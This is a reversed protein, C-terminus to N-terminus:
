RMNYLSKSELVVDKYALWTSTFPEREIGENTELRAGTVLTPASPWFRLDGLGATLLQQENALLSFSANDFNGIYKYTSSTTGTFVLYVDQIGTVTKELEGTMTTYTGWGNGTPPVAVTGVLRGDVGGLRVEIASDLACNGSNSTYEVALQDVGDSGFDINEYALWAGNYTNAVQKGSKGSETKLPANNAPNVETAWDDFSELELNDYDNRLAQHELTFRDFNGIYRLASTTSAHMILYVTHNGTVTRTLNAELTEYTGWSSGTNKLSVAGIVEGDLRDLRMELEIDDPAKQSPADYEVKIHNKGQKGFDVSEYALWAGDFTNAVVTGGNNDETKLPGNNYENVDSTWESYNEFEVVLPGNGTDPESPEDVKKSFSARDFNGIYKYTADTTGTLVLYVDQIGTISEDFAATATSYTGWGSGTPPVAVTGILTGDIAGLRVEIAADQASNGSNSAYEIALQNVGDTGFDINEYALWAGNFTNAVQEGSKGAETKMPSNNAPNVETSWDDFSELELSTFDTRVEEYDFTFQDFNGIYPFDSTTNGKMVIYLDQTGTVTTTLDAEMTTYSGWGSGTHELPVTGVLQGDVGGLRFELASGEPARSSPADYEVTVKNKGETGFDVGNYALWAGDFTNAVVVGGNNAETKLPGNNFTNVDSSWESRSEFELTLGDTVPKDPQEGEGPEESDDEEPIPLPDLEEEDEGDDEGEDPQDPDTGPVPVPTPLPVVPEALWLSDYVNGNYNDVVYVNVQYDKSTTNFMQSLEFDGNKVPVGNSMWAQGEGNMLQFVVVADESYDGTLTGTVDVQLNGTRKVEVDLEYVDWQDNETYAANSILAKGFSQDKSEDAEVRVQVQGAEYAVPGVTQPNKTVNNWTAGGDTSFEYDTAQDFGPVFTWGFSNDEDDVVPATPADPTTMNKLAELNFEFAIDSSTANTQHVEATIVNEGDVLYAPDIIYGNPNREDNVTGNALTDYKIEGDPMNTRIIEHGNLYVVAGDDRILTADLGVISDADEVEFSKRFYTTIYKNGSDPGYSVETNVNGNRDYGLMAKGSAWTSDDFDVSTWGNGAFQGKDYYKWESETEILDKRVLLNNVEKTYDTTPPASSDAAGWKFNPEAGMEFELTGGAMIEEYGIWAQDFNEGNLQGSQIFRNDSSVNNAKITFSKGNDLNLTMEDFIPSGILYYPDGPNGPFLGMASYIFWSAMAGADDDMSQLYGEPDARYVRSEMPYAYLGHNHYKQTVVETTYERAYYQTLYPMGLYNFLYPVHLDPENVAMYEDIEFFYQLDIAMERESGILDALGEVDHPVFWRYTWLNGQYAFKDVPTIDNQSVKNANPTFFGRQNGSEDVQEVNWLHKYSQAVAKYKEYTEEDGILEALKMPYYASYAKELKGSIENDSIVYNDTDTAMGQLATQADAASLDFGKAYADLIVAGNFENRVTPSPWYGSGWQTYSGRTKYVDIMSKVMNEFAQPALLSYLSYKRFDDWTTWGNYYEFDAGIESTERVTDEDRAARFTGNSSTVNNPHLFSHYMQTYFITKNEENDDKIEVKNLLDSWVGRTEQHQADFDWGSIDHDREYKAQDVSITSLGVKAQVVKNDATNFDVWVGSNSGSRERDNGVANGAWTRYSEFDHDFQISYYITYYGNGCVNKSQIMGTIENNNEVKLNADVMGAYSNSLDILVSGDTEAEPFTYRHFGVNESSTLEVDIGSALEVSYYGPSAQETEKNYKQKYENSNKTFSQTEPMMLINGGAGSCGVGSFRLHSFGKLYKDQYYYGSFAGGDSDPGLSVLGFPTTPGPNTQGNDGLTNIFPDVYDVSALNTDPSGPVQNKEVGYVEFEYLRVTNNDYAAKDVYFRVYRATFTPVYREVITQVNNSVVDVEVWTKGDDSKQLRFDKTNWFPYMGSENIGANKVKWKNINYEKGLDLALWKNAAVSNDCWKTDTKGDVAFSAAENQNCQGTATAEAHLAVNWTPTTQVASDTAAAVTRVAGVIPELLTLLILGILFISTFKKGM